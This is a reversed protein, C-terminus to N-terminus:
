RAGALAEASARRAETAAILAAHSWTLDPSSRPAGTAGDIQEPLRGAEPVHRRVTALFADGIDMLKRGLVIRDTAAEMAPEGGLRQLFSRVASASAEQAQGPMAGALRFFLEAFGLTTPLWPNGGFYRDSPGRGVAPAGYDNIPFAGASWHLLWEATALTRPDAVGLTPEDPDGILVGLIVAADASATPEAARSRLIKADEVWLGALALEIRELAAAAADARAGAFRGDAVGARLAARQVLLTFAHVDHEGDEEWPGICPQAAHRLTFGLDLAILETMDAPADGQWALCSLARLAPGDYQPRSWREFDPEGDVNARPESQLSDGRLAALEEDPRLFQAATPQVSRWLPNANPGPRTAIRFSFAVYDAMRRRWGEPDTRALTPALLMVIAADRVWHYAYDPAPDWRARHPSALVSGPAAVVTQGIEPRYHRFGRASVAAALAARSAREQARIWAEFGADGTARQAKLMMALRTAGLSLWDAYESM